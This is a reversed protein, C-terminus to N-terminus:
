DGQWIGDPRMQAFALLGHLAAKANGETAAWYYPDVDDGLKAIVSKLIPISEAGTMGYLVRIGVFPVGECNLRASSEFEKFAPQFHKAYNYTISTTLRDDGGVCYTGGRIHHPTEVILVEGTVPNTLSIDYSM